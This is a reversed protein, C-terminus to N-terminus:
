AAKPAARTAARRDGQLLASKLTQKREAIQAGLHELADPGLRAADLFMGGEEETVHAMVAGKLTALRGALDASGPDLGEVEGVLRRVHEHSARADEVRGSVQQVAPYFLEEEVQTHIQLEDAIQELTSRREDAASQECQRFLDSVREHDQRLLDTAKM